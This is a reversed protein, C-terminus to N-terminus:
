SAVDGHRTQPRPPTRRHRVRRREEYAQRKDRRGGDDAIRQDIGNVLEADIGGILQRVVDLSYRSDFATTTQQGNINRSKMGRTSSVRCRRWARGGIEGGLSSFTHCAVGGSGSVVAQTAKPRSAQATSRRKKRSWFGPERAPYSGSRVLAHSLWRAAASFTNPSFRALLVSTTSLLPTVIAPGSPTAVHRISAGAVPAGVATLSRSAKSQSNSATAENTPRLFRSPLFVIRWPALDFLSLELPLKRPNFVRLKLGRGGRWAGRIEGRGGPGRSLEFSEM